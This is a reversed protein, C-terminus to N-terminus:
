THALWMAAVQRRTRLKIHTGQSGKSDKIFWMAAASPAWRSNNGYFQRCTDTDGLWVTVPSIQFPTCGHAKDYNELWKRLMNKDDVDGMKYFMLGGAGGTGRSWWTNAYWLFCQSWLSLDTRLGLRGPRLLEQPPKTAGTANFGCYYGLQVCVCVCVCMGLFKHAQVGM